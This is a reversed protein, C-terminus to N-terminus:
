SGRVVELRPFSRGVVAKSDAGLWKQVVEAYVARFDTTHKLDGQDLDTRKLGPAAGDGIVFMPGATAHDTGRSANEEVRRGFESFSMMLVRDAAGSKALDGHFAKVGEAFEKLLRDQTGAQGAHTDFGTMSVYYIRAPLGGLIM